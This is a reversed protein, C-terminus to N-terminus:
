EVGLGVNNVKDYVVQGHYYVCLQTKNQNIHGHCFCFPWLNKPYFLAKVSDIMRGEFEVHEVKDCVVQGHCFCMVPSQEPKNSWSLFLFIHSYSCTDVYMDEHCLTYFKLSVKKNSSCLFLFFIGM